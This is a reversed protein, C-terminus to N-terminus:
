MWHVNSCVLKTFLLSLQFIIKAQWHDLGLLLTGIGDFKPKTFLLHGWAVTVAYGCTPLHQTQYSSTNTIWIPYFNINSEPCLKESQVFNNEAMQLWTLLRQHPKLFWKLCESIGRHLKMKNFKFLFEVHLGQPIIDHKIYQTAEVFRLM